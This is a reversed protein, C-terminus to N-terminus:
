YWSCISWANAILIFSSKSCITTTVLIFYGAQSVKAKTSSSAPKPSSVNIQWPVCRFKIFQHAEKSPTYLFVAACCQTSLDLQQASILSVPATKYSFMATLWLKFLLIRISSNWFWLLEASGFSTDWRKRGQTVQERRKAQALRFTWATTRHAPDLFQHVRFEAYCKQLVILFLSIFAAQCTLHTAYDKLSLIFNCWSPYTRCTARYQTTPTM